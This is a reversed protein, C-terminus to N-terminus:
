GTPSEREKEGKKKDVLAQIEGPLIFRDAPIDVNHAVSETVMLQEQLGGGIVQRVKHALLIGDVPKYDSLHSEAPMTGMATELQLESKVLLGSEQDYYNTEPSGEHPTLVVKYCPKEDVTERGVCEAKKYFERWKVTADFSAERLMLAREGGKKVQPGQMMSLEWVVQGDTGAEFKGLSQTQWVFYQKTPRAQYTTTAGTIGMGVIELTGKVVRSELKEFPAKGGIAEVYKDVIVEGAPLSEGEARVVGPAAMGFGFTATAIWGILVQFRRRIETRVTVSTM